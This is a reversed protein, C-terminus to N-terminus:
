ENFRVGWVELESITFSSWEADFLKHNKQNSLMNIAKSNKPISYVAENAYSLCAFLKNFPEDM